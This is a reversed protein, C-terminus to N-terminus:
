SESEHKILEVAIPTREVIDHFTGDDEQFLPMVQVLVGGSALPFAGDFFVMLSRGNPSAFGVWARMTTRASTLQVVDGRQFPRANM